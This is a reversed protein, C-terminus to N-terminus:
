PWNTCCPSPCTVPAATVIIANFPAEEPWGQYGDGVRVRVNRYGLAGLTQEAQRALPALIEVTLVQAVLEALVAAQYGSGTGVELVKDTKQLALAETMKAVLSPQSITQGHGIPLPGDRYAVSAYAAPVFRHRPVRRLAALVAPDTIGSPIISADVMHNREAARTPDLSSAEHRRNGACSSAGVLLVHVLLVGLLALTHPRRSCPTMSAGLPITVCGHLHACAMGSSYM